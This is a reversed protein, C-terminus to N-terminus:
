AMEGLTCPGQHVLVPWQPLFIMSRCVGEAHVNQSETASITIAIIQPQSMDWFHPWVSGPYPEKAVDNQHRTADKLRGLVVAYLIACQDLVLAPRSTTVGRQHRHAQASGSRARLLSIPQAAVSRGSRRDRKLLQTM